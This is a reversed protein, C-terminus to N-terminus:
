QTTSAKTNEPNQTTPLTNNPRPFFLSNKAHRIKLTFFFHLNTIVIADANETKNDFTCDDEVLLTQFHPRVLHSHPAIM